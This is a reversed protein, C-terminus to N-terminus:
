YGTKRTVYESRPDHIKVVPYQGCADQLQKVYKAKVVQVGGVPHQMKEGVRSIDGRDNYIIIYGKEDLGLNSSEPFLILSNKEKYFFCGDRLQITGTHSDFVIEDGEVYDDRLFLRIHPAVRPDITKEPSRPRLFTFEIDPDNRYIEMGPLLFFVDEYSAISIEFVGKEMNIRTARHTDVPSLAKHMEYGKADLYSLSHRRIESKFHPNSTYKALTKQPERKFSFIHQFEPEWAYRFENFNDPEKEMLTAQLKLAEDRFQYYKNPKKSPLTNKMNEIVEHDQKTLKSHPASLVTAYGDNSLRYSQGPALTACGTLTLMILLPYIAIQVAHKLM